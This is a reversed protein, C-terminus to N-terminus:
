VFFNKKYLKTELLQLLNAAIVPCHYTACHAHLMLYVHVTRLRTLYTLQLVKKPTIPHLTSFKNLFLFYLSFELSTHLIAYKLCICLIPRNEMKSSYAAEADTKQCRTVYFSSAYELGFIM